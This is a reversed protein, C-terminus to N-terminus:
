IVTTFINTELKSIFQCVVAVTLFVLTVINVYTDDNM